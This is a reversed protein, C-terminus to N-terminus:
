SGDTGELAGPTGIRNFQLHVHDGGDGTYGGLQLDIKDSMRRVSAIRTAGAFVRTGPTVTVDTVHILVVNVDEAGDPRIHIEVDEHTGYLQYPRVEVVTGTVPSWVPAGPEAGLDAATNPEGTRNSRWLRLCVGVWVDPEQRISTDAPPVAKMEAALEMDADPVLAEMALAASGSAQHFALATIDTPDIPMRVEIGECAAFLPTPEREPGPAAPASAAATAPAGSEGARGDGDWSLMWGIVALGVVAVAITAVPYPSRSRRPRRYRYCASGGPATRDSDARVVRARRPARSRSSRMGRARPGPPTNSVPM